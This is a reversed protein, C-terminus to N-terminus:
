IPRRVRRDAVREMADDDEKVACSSFKSHFDGALCQVTSPHIRDHYRLSPIFVHGIVTLGAVRNNLGGFMALFVVGARNGGVKERWYFEKGSVACM